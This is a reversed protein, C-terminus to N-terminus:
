LRFSLLTVFRRVTTALDLEEKAELVPDHTAEDLPNAAEWEYEHLLEEVDTVHQFLSLM